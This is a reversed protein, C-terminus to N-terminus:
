RKREDEEEQEIGTENMAKEQGNEESVSSDLYLLIKEEEKIFTCPSIM